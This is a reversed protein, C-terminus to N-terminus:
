NRDSEDALILFILLFVAFPFAWTSSESTKGSAELGMLSVDFSVTSEIDVIVESGDVHVTGRSLEAVSTSREAHSLKGRLSFPSLYEISANIRASAHEFEPRRETKLYNVKIM